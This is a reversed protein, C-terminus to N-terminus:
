ARVGPVTFQCSMVYFVGYATSGDKEKAVNVNVTFRLYDVKFPIQWEFWYNRKNYGM